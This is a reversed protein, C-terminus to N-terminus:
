IVIGSDWGENEEEDRGGECTDHWRVTCSGRRVQVGRGVSEEKDYTGAHLEVVGGLSDEAVGDTWDDEDPLCVVTFRWPISFSSTLVRAGPKSLGESVVYM